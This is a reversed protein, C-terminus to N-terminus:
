CIWLSSIKCLMDVILMIVSLINGGPMNVSLGIAVLMFVSLMDVETHYYFLAVSLIIGCFVSHKTSIHEAYQCVTQHCEAYHCQLQRLM